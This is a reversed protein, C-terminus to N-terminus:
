GAEGYLHCDKLSKPLLSKVKEEPYPSTLFTEGILFGRVGLHSFFELEDRTRFGSESIVLFDKLFPLLKRTTELYVTFDKLDRNNIGIIRTKTRVAKQAEEFTHVEVVPEMGLDLAKQVLNSLIKEELVAAILLVADAGYVRSELIEEPSSLFDKRLVPLRTVSKVKEIWEKKGHFYFEDTVISIANAGSEEYLKGWFVPDLESFFIGKSPSGAKVEAIIAYESSGFAQFFDRPKETGILKEELFKLYEKTLASQLYTRRRSFIENLINM